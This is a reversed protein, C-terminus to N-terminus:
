IIFHSFWTATIYKWLIFQLNYGSHLPDIIIIVIMQFEQKKNNM